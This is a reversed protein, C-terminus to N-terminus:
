DLIYYYSFFFFIYYCILYLLSSVNATEMNFPENNTNQINNNNQMNNQQQEQNQQGVNSFDKELSTLLYLDHKTSNAELKSKMIDKAHLVDKITTDCTVVRFLFKHGDEREPNVKKITIDVSQGPAIYSTSPNASYKKTQNIYVKMIVYQDAVNTIKVTSEYTNQTSNRLLYIKDSSAKIYEFDVM